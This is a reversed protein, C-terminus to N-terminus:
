RRRVTRHIFVRYYYKSIDTVLHTIVTIEGPTHILHLLMYEYAFPERFELSVQNKVDVASDTFDYSSSVGVENQQASALVLLCRIRTDYVYRTCLLVQM